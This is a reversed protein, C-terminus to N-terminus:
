KCNIKEKRSFILVCKISSFIPIYVQYQCTYTVINKSINVKMEHFYQSMCKVFLHKISVARMTQSGRFNISFISFTERVFGSLELKRDFRTTKDVIPQVQLTGYLGNILSLWSNSRSELVYREKDEMPPGM